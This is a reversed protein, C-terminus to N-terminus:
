CLNYLMPTNAYSSRRSLEAGGSHSTSHAVANRLAVFLCRRISVGCISRMSSDSWGLYWFPFRPVIRWVTAKVMANVYCPMCRRALAANWQISARSRWVEGCDKM